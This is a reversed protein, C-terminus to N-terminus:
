CVAGDCGVRAEAVARNLWARSVPGVYTNAVRGDPRLVVTTPFVSVQFRRLVDDGVAALPYDIGSARGFAAVEEADGSQGALGVLVGAPGFSRAFAVLEPIEARCPPCWTAFFNLVVVKGRLDALRLRTGDIARVALAPAADGRRPGGARRGAFWNGVAFAAALLMLGRVWRRLRPSASLSGIASM